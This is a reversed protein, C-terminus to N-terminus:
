NQDPSRTPSRSTRRLTLIPNEAFMTAQVNVTPLGSWDLVQESIWHARQQPSWDTVNGGLWARREEKAATMKEFTMYSQEYESIHVFVELAGFARVRHGQGLLMQAMVRSM